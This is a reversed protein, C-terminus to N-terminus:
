TRLTEKKMIKRGSGYRKNKLFFEQKGKDEDKERLQEDKLM